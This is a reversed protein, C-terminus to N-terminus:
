QSPPQFPGEEQNAAVDVLNHLDQNAPENRWQQAHNGFHQQDAWQQIWEPEGPLVVANFPHPNDNDPPFADLFDRDFVSGLRIIDVGMPSLVGLFGLNFPIFLHNRIAHLLAMKEDEELMADCETIALDENHHIYDAPLASSQGSFSCSGAEM